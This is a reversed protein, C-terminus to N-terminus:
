QIARILRWSLFDGFYNTWAVDLELGIRHLLRAVRNFHLVSATSGFPLTRSVFGAVDGTEPRKLALVSM